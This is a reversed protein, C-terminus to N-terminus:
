NLSFHWQAFHMGKVVTAHRELREHINCLLQLWYEHGTDASQIRTYFKAACQRARIVRLLAEIVSQPVAIDGQCIIDIADSIQIAHLSESPWGAMKSLTTFVHREDKKYKHYSFVM